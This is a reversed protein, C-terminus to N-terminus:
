CGPRRLSLRKNAFVGSDDAHQADKPAKCVFGGVALSVMGLAATVSILVATLTQPHQSFAVEPCQLAERDCQALLAALWEPGSRHLPSGVAHM